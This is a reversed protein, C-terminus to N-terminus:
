NNQDWSAFCSMNNNVVVKPKVEYVLLFGSDHDYIQLHVLYGFEYGHVKSTGFMMCRSADFMMCRSTGFMMCKSTGFMMRKSTGFYIQNSATCNQHM